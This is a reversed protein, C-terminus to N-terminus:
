NLNLGFARSGLKKKFLKEKEIAQERTSVFISIRYLLTVSHLINQKFSHVRKLGSLIFRVIIM